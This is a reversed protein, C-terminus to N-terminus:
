GTPAASIEREVASLLADATFPNALIRRVPSSSV